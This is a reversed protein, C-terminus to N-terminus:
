IEKSYIYANRGKSNYTSYPKANDPLETYDKKTLKRYVRLRRLAYNKFVKDKLATKMVDDLTADQGYTKIAQKGIRSSAGAGGQNEIDALFILTEEDAFGLTACHNIYNQIDKKALKIQAEHSEKFSLLSEICDKESENLVRKSWSKSSCIERIILPAKIPIFGQKTLDAIITRLLAKARNGHWQCAGVSLAGNDDANVSTYNGEMSFIIEIARNVIEYGM